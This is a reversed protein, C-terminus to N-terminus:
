EADESQSEETQSDETSAQANTEETTEEGEDWSDPISLSTTDFTQDPDREWPSGPPM